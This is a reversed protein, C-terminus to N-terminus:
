VRRAEVFHKQWYKADLKETRVKGGTSPAHVFRGDGIFIGVHSSKQGEQDFFLLDGRRLDSVRTLSTQTKLTRTDRSVDVGVRSYSYHVLGSCDFGTPTNGGYKYPKGLMSVATDAAKSATTDSAKVRLPASSPSPTSACGYLVLLAIPLFLFRPIQMALVVVNSGLKLNLLNHAPIRTALRELSVVGPSQRGGV